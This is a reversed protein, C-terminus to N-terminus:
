CILFRRTKLILIRTHTGANFSIQEAFLSIRGANFSIARMVGLDAALLLSDIIETPKLRM